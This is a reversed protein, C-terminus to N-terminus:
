VTRLLVDVWAPATNAMWVLRGEQLVAARLPRTGANDFVVAEDALRLAEPARALSRFYRRRIDADPIDHGGNAVRLRVREIQLDPDGLAVYIVITRYGVRKADLMLSMAGHGALTSEVIFSAGTAIFSRCQLIAQRAAPVAADSPREADIERAIADPDVIPLKRGAM